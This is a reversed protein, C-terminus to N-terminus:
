WRRRYRNWAYLAAAFVNYVWRAVLRVGPLSVLDALYGQGPTRRWLTGFAEAGVRLEGKEDVVHLRERVFEQKAGIEKLAEPRNHIDIWDVEVPCGAMREKQGEIGANCVPCAGNYYVKLRDM